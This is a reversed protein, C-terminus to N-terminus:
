EETVYFVRKGIDSDGIKQRQDDVFSKFKDRTDLYNDGNIIIIGGNQLSLEMMPTDNSASDGIACKVKRNMKEQLEILINKKTEGFVPMKDTKSSFVGYKDVVMTSACVPKRGDCDQDLLRNYETGRLVGMAIDQLSTTVVRVPVDDDLLNFIIDRVDKVVHIRKDFSVKELKDSGVRQKSIKKNEDHVDLEEFRNGNINDEMMLSIIKGVNRRTMGTLFRTRLLLQGVTAHQFVAEMSLILKDLAIMKHAFENVVPDAITLDEEGIYTFIGVYLEFLDDKLDLFLQCDEPSLVPIRGNLGLNVVSTQAVPALLAKFNDPHIGWVNPSRLMHLSTLMGLDNDFMTGDMDTAVMGDKLMKDDLFEDRINSFSYEADNYHTNHNKLIPDSEM